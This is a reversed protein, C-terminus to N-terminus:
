FWPHKLMNKIASREHINKHLMTQLLDKMNDSRNSWYLPDFCLKTTLIQKKIDQYDQVCGKIYPHYGCALMYMTIGLSWIDSAHQIDHDLKEPAYYYPTGIPRVFIDDYSRCSGMDVMRAGELTVIMNGPKIDNLYIQKTEADHILTLMDYTWKRLTDEPISFGDRVDKYLDAANNGQVLEMFIYFTDKDEDADIYMPTKCSSELQRMMWIERMWQERKTRAKALSKLAVTKNQLQVSYVSGFAGKGLEKNKVVYSPLM